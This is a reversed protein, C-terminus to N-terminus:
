RAFDEEARLAGYPCQRTTCTMMCDHMGQGAMLPKTCYDSQKCGQVMDNAASAAAAVMELVQSDSLEDAPDVQPGTPSMSVVPSGTPHRPPAPAPAFPSPPQVPRAQHTAWPSHPLQQQGPAFPSPAVHLGSSQIWPDNIWTPDPNTPDAFVSRVMFSSFAARPPEFIDSDWPPQGGDNTASILEAGMPAPAPLTWGTFSSSM